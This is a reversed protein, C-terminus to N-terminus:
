GHAGYKASVLQTIKTILRQDDALPQTIHKATNGYSNPAKISYDEREQMEEIIMQTDDHPFEESVITTILGFDLSLAAEYLDTQSYRNSETFRPVQFSRVLTDTIAAIRVAQLVDLVSRDHGTTRVSGTELQDTLRYLDILDERLKWVTQRVSVASTRKRLHNAIQRFARQNAPQSGHYAKDIWFGNDLLRGYALVTNLSGLQKAELIHSLCQQLRPSLSYMEIFREKDIHAATGMGSIVVALFGLQQLIANHPIARIKSPDGREM